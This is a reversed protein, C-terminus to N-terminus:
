SDQQGLAIARGKKVRDDWKQKASSNEMENERRAQRIEQRLDPNKLIYDKINDRARSLLKARFRDISEIIIRHDMPVGNRKFDDEIDAMFECFKNHLEDSTVFGLDDIASM